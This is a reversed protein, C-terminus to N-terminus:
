AAGAAGALLTRRVLELAAQSAQRRIRERDGPLRFRRHLSREAPGSVAVHVTGVPKDPSGGEPGAIGTVAVGLAAAFSRRVGEAMARAVPESVAGHEALLEPAVGLLQTKRENAYAVVGGPFYRSAGPVSTIRGCVEGGTCSEAVALTLGREALLAGVVAELTAGEGEGFLADGLLARARAALRELRAEVEVAEGAAVLAVRVEGPSALLTVAARGAEAYLPALLQDVESEPRLAVRLVRRGIRRGGARRALWPVLEREVFGELELPVGPLLFLTSGDLDLRQGPATGRPNALAEAGEVIRAQRRNNPSPTRGFAAFRREIAEWIEAREVLRRGFARAAAERTVDDETPGLGGTAVVLDAEGAARALEAAIAGQDDGVVAKRVLEVGHSELAAALRLSNTDLRDTSLLESGIAVIAARM